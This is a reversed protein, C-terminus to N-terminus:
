WIQKRFGFAFLIFILALLGIHIFITTQIIHIIRSPITTNATLSHTQDIIITTDPALINKIFAARGPNNDGSMANIFIGPDSIVIVQGKGVPQRSGVVFVGLTENSDARHNGNTDEWSFLSTRLIPEGGKLSSPLDLVLSSINRTLPSTNGPFAMVFAPSNFASDASVLPHTRIRIDVGMLDLLENGNGFDDFLLITNGRSLYDKYISAETLSYPGTPAIILLTSDNYQNLLEQPDMLMVTDSGEIEKFFESTGNWGPNYRSYDNYDTSLHVLFVMAVLVLIGATIMSVPKLL